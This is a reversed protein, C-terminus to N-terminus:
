VHVELSNTFFQTDRERFQVVYVDPDFIPDADWTFTITRAGVNSLRISSLWQGSSGSQCTDQCQLVLLHILILHPIESSDCFFVSMLMLHFSNNKTMCTCHVHIFSYVNVYMCLVLTVQM